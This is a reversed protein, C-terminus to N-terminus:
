IIQQLYSFILVRRVRDEGEQGMVRIVFHRPPMELVVQGQGVYDFSPDHIQFRSGENLHVDTSNLCVLILIILFGHIFELAGERRVHFGLLLAPNIALAREVLPPIGLESRRYRTFCARIRLKWCCYIIDGNTMLEM